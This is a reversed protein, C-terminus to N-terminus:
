GHSRAAPDWEPAVWLTGPAGTREALDRIQVKIGAILLHALIALYAIRRHQDGGPHVPRASALYQAHGYRQALLLHM